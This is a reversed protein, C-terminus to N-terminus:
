GAPAWVGAKGTERLAEAGRRSIDAAHIRSLRQPPDPGKPNLWTTAVVAIRNTREYPDFGPNDENKPWGKAQPRLATPTPLGPVWRRSLYTQERPSRPTEAHFLTRVGERSRTLDWLTPAQRTQRGAPAPSGEPCPVWPERRPSDDTPAGCRRARCIGCPCAGTIGPGSLPRKWARHRQRQCPLFGVAHFTQGSGRRERRRPTFCSRSEQADERRPTLIEPIWVKGVGLCPSRRAFHM